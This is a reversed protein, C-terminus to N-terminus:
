IVLVLEDPAKGARILRLRYVLVSDVYRGIANPRRLNERSSSAHMAEDPVQMIGGRVRHLVLIWDRRDIVVRRAIGEARGSQGAPVRDFHRGVPFAVSLREGDFH